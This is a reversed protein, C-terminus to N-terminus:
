PSAGRLPLPFVAFSFQMLTKCVPCALPDIGNQQIMRQRWSLILCPPEFEKNLIRLVAACSKTKVRHAFFGFYRIQKFFKDPIHRIIRKIFEQVPLHIFVKEQLNKDDYWFSVITGDYASIRTEALVPRKTYRGVYQVTFFLSTLKKGIHVYWIYRQYLMNLFSNFAPYSIFLKLPKTLSLTNNKFSTRIFSIVNYKWRAKLVKEPFIPLRIWQAHNASLGGCSVIIHIHPNIELTKGFTHMVAIIGPICNKQEKAWSLISQAALKFLANLLLKRNLICLLRLQEPITFVIHRYMINPFQSISKHVWNDVAVKGCSSCFRSKCTHPVKQTYGCQPCIFQHFGLADTKCSIVKDVNEHVAPRILSGYQNKFTNWNNNHLLIHKITFKGSFIEM